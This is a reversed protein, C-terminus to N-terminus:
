RVYIFEDLNFLLWALGRLRSTENDLYKLAREREAPSPPRAIATRYALEVATELNGGAEKEIREAFKASAKNVVDSNMMFLAQPPTVTQTRLPCPTRGDEVDFTQLFAPVADRSTSYGRAMYAGRRTSAGGRAGGGRKGGGGESDFSPGGVAMDLSGASTFISDWIPEAELRQLRFRWLLANNPDIKQNAAAVAADGSSSRKYADSMVILKHM